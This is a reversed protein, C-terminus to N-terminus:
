VSPGVVGCQPFGYARSADSAAKTAAGLATTQPAILQPRNADIALAIGDIIRAAQMAGAFYALAFSSGPDPPPGLKRTKAIGAAYGAALRHLYSSLQAGARRDGRAVRALLAHLLRDSQAALKDAGQCANPFHALYSRKAASQGPAAYLKAGGSGHVATTSGGCGGIAGACCCVIPALRRMVLM